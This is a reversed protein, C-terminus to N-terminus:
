ALPSAPRGAVPIRAAVRVADLPSIYNLRHVQAGAAAALAAAAITGSGRESAGLRGEWSGALVAGVFDKRSLSV